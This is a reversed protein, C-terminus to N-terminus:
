RNPKSRGPPRDHDARHQLMEDYKEVEIVCDSRPKARCLLAYGAAEDEPYYRRADSHDLEGELLRGACTTCWGQQCDAPLWVGEARARSLVYEDPSVQIERTEGAGENESAEPILLTVAYTRSEDNTM